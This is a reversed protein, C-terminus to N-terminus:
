CAFSQPGRQKDTEVTVETQPCIGLQAPYRTRQDVLNKGLQIVVAGVELSANSIVGEGKLCRCESQSRHM